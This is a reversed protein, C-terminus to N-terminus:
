VRGGRQRARHALWTAFLLGVPGAVVAPPLPAMPTDSLDLDPAMVAAAASRTRWLLSADLPADPEGTFTFHEVSSAIVPPQPDSQQPDAPDLLAAFDIDGASDDDILAADASTIRPLASGEDALASAPLTALWGLALAGLAIAVPWGRVVISM